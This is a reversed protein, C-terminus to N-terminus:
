SITTENYIAMSVLSVNNPDLAISSLKIDVLDIKTHPNSGVTVLFENIDRELLAAEKNILIKVKMM